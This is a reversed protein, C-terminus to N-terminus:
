SHIKIGKQFGKSASFLTRYANKKAQPVKISAKASIKGIANDQVSCLVTSEISINKLNRCGYFARIGLKKVNKGIIVTKLKENCIFADRGIATVKYTRGGIKVTDPVQLITFSPNQADTLTVTGTGQKSHVTASTVQYLLGGIRYDYGKKASIRFEKCVVGCYNGKGIIQVEYIGLDKRGKPYRIEYDTNKKLTCGVAQVGPSKVKGDWVYESVDLNVKKATLEARRITFNKKLTGTYTGKGTVTVSATGVNKNQSYAVTYDSGGKLTVGSVKVTVSPKKTKGDYTYASKSLTLTGDSLKKKTATPTTPNNSTNTGKPQYYFNRDVYGTIGSVLGSKTYQWFQYNGTYKAKSIYEALWIQYKKGLTSGDIQDTLMSRNAYIMPTHGKSKVRKCFAECVTTAKSKSLKAKYLRGGISTGVDAYEYDMVIPLSLHYAGIRNLCFDAEQQAEKETTAQSFIYVGVKVGSAIANKINKTFKTDEKLNGSDGYGRFGVRIIAYDIGSQKVKKWNIEGQWCSVDIMDSIKYNAFKADHQYGTAARLRAGQEYAEQQKRARGTEPDEPDPNPHNKELVSQASAYVEEALVSRRNMVMCCLMLFLILGIYMVKKTRRNSEVNKQLM